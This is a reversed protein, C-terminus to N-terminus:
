NLISNYQVNILDPLYIAIIELVKESGTSFSIKFPCYNAGGSTLLHSYDLNESNEVIRKM